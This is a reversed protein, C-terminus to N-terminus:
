QVTDFAPEDLCTKGACRLGLRQVTEAVVAASCADRERTGRQDDVRQVWDVFAACKTPSGVAGLLRRDDFVPWRVDALGRGVPLAAREVMQHLRSVALQAAPDARTVRAVERDKALQFRFTLGVVNGEDMAETNRADDALHVADVRGPDRRTGVAKALRIENCQSAENRQERKADFAYRQCADRPRQDLHIEAVIRALAHQAAADRATNGVADFCDDPERVQATVRLIVSVEAGSSIM